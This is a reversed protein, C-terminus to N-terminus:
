RWISRSTINRWEKRRRFFLDDRGGVFMAPEAMIWLVGLGERGFRTIMERMVLAWVVRRQIGLQKWFTPQQQEVTM